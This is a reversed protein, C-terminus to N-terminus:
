ASGAPLVDKLVKENDWSWAGNEWVAHRNPRSVRTNFEGDTHNWYRTNVFNNLDSIESMHQIVTHGNVDVSLHDPNNLGQPPKVARIDGHSDVFILHYIM